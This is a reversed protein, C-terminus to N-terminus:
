KQNEKENERDKDILEPETEVEDEGNKWFSLMKEWFAEEMPM